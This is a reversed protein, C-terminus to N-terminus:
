RAEQNVRIPYILIVSYHRSIIGFFSPNRRKRRTKIYIKMQKDSNM